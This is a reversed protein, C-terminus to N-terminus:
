IEPKHRFKIEGFQIMSGFHIIWDKVKSVLMSYIDPPKNKFFTLVAINTFRHIELLIINWHKM